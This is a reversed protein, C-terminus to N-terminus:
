SRRGGPLQAAISVSWPRVAPFHSLFREGLEAVFNTSRRAGEPQGTAVVARAFDSYLNAFAELGFGLRTRLDFVNDHCGIFEQFVLLVTFMVVLPWDM